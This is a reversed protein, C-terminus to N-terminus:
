SQLLNVFLAGWMVLLILGSSAYASLRKAVDNSTIHILSHLYRLAVYAWALGVLWYSVQHSVYAMLIGVYFLMPMEFLNIFNRTIVRMDVPEEGEDYTKYFRLSVYGSLVGGIRRWGMLTLVLAVLLFMAFPPYLILKPDPEGGTGGSLVRAIASAALLGAVFAIVTGVSLVRFQAQVEENM